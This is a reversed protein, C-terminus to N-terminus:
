APNGNALMTGVMGVLFGAVAGLPPAWHRELRAQPAIDQFILYLLGGSALLMISGLWTPHQGLATYGLFACAPGVLALAAFKELTKGVAAGTSRLERFANFSEPLNQVAIIVALLPGYGDGAAFSAGLVCAEPVFDLLMGTLQPREGGHRALARELLFFLCGGASLSIAAIPTSVRAIGEPVLVLAVAALLAGGGFAIVAHRLEEELWRSQIRERSAILGGIPIACGALLSFLLASRM